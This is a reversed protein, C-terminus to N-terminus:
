ARPSAATRPRVLASYPKWESATCSGNKIAQRLKHSDEALVDSSKFVDRLFGFLLKHVGENRIGTAHSHDASRHCCRRLVAARMPENAWYVDAQPNNKEALLRNMVGTSKAEETDYVAQVKIETQKEFDKLIPEAFVQDESVYVVVEPARSASRRAQCAFGGGILVGIAVLLTLPYQKL